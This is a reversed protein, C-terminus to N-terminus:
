TSSIWLLSVYFEGRGRNLILYQGFNEQKLVPSQINGGNSRFIDFFSTALQLPNTSRGYLLENSGGWNERSANVAKHRIAPSVIITPM